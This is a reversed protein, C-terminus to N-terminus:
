RTEPIWFDGDAVDWEEGLQIPLGQRARIHDDIRERERAARAARLESLVAENWVLTDDASLAIHAGGPAVDPEALLMARLSEADACGCMRDLWEDVLLVGEDFSVM